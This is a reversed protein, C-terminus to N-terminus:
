KLRGTKITGWTAALKDAAEVALSSKMLQEVEAQNLQNDFIYLEDQLWKSFLTRGPVVDIDINGVWFDNDLKAPGEKFGGKAALKGDLFLHMGEPGWTCAIFHTEGVDWDLDKSCTAGQEHWKGNNKIMWCIGKSQWAHSHNIFWADNGRFYSLFIFSETPQKLIPFLVKVWLAITGAELQIHKDTPFSLAEGVADAVFGNGLAAEEFSGGHVTGGGAKVAKESDLSNYFTQKANTQPISILLAMTIVATTFMVSNLNQNSM